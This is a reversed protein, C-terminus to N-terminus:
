LSNVTVNLGGWWVVSLSPRSITRRFSKWPSNAYNDSEISSRQTRLWHELTGKQSFLNKYVFRTRQEFILLWKKNHLTLLLRVSSIILPTHEDDGTTIQNVSSGMRQWGYCIVEYDCTGSIVSVGCKLGPYLFVAKGHFYTSPHYRGQDAEACVVGLWWYIRFKYSEITIKQISTWIKWCIMKIYTNWASRSGSVYCLICWCSIIEDM